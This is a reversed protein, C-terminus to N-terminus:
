VTLNPAKSQLFRGLGLKFGVNRTGRPVPDRVCAVEWGYEKVRAEKRRPSLM